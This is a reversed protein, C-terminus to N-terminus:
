RLTLRRTHDSGSEHSGYEQGGKRLFRSYFASASQPADAFLSAEGENALLYDYLYTTSQLTITLTPIHMVEELDLHGVFKDRYTRMEMIYNDFEAESIEANNLLGQIFAEPDSVVKRWYHKGREDGFLKCWELVCISLFNGNANVWFQGGFNRANTRWGARYFALNRLCHCCLIAVRRLRQSPTM